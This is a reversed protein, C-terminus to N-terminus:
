SLIERVKKYNSLLSIGYDTAQYYKNGNRDISEVLIGKDVLKKTLVKLKEYSISMEYILPTLKSPTLSVREVLEMCQELESRRQRYKKVRAGIGLFAQIEEAIKESINDMLDVIRRARKRFSEAEEPKLLRLTESCLEQPNTSHPVYKHLEKVPKSQNWYIASICPKCLVFAEMLMTEAAGLVVNAFFVPNEPTINNFIPVGIRELRKRQHEDRPIALLDFKGRKYDSSSVLIRLTEELTTKESPFFSAFRPETRVLVLPGSIGMEKFTNKEPPRCGKLYTTNFGKFWVISSADIVGQKHLEERTYFHPAFVKNSLPFVMRNVHFEREDYFISWSPINLGFAVRVAEPWRETIMLDPREAKILPLFESLGEAYASLKGYLERGGHKGVAKYNVGKADLIGLVRDHDRATVLLDIKDKFKEIIPYFVNAQFPTGIAFWLKFKKQPGELQM